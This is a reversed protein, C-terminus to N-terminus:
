FLISDSENVKVGFVAEFNNIINRSTKQLDVNKSLVESMSVVKLGSIGCPIIHSFKESQSQLNLSFGHMTVRKKVYIGIFAIKSDGIWVGPLRDK